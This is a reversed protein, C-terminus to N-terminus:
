AVQEPTDNLAADITARGLAAMTEDNRSSALYALGLALAWGRARMWTDDDIPDFAGRASARLTPRAPPPLLMWTVSLDTAPDGAALDGFDIVASLRGGNVLLNGPHLDGHIWLPPGSWPPTSAVREWLTLVAASEVLDDLQQLHEQVTKARAALPVGRWPNHPADGPAPQHLARLFRGLVTAATEPDEPPALAASQGTFWPVVSWYWPFGCGPRGTRRPAPIPLPLRPALLPLWRQEHEILAASAARRPLRIALDDGLRFLRNDWGEGVDVLALHVLDAHQERLLARVLSPDIAVEAPPIAGITM